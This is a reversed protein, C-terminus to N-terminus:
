VSRQDAPWIVKHMQVQFRVPLAERLVREALERRSLPTQGAPVRKLSPDQQAGSLPEAWSVLLPCVSALRHEVIVGKMWEVDEATGVVFKVEDTGKLHRLNEWRNREM